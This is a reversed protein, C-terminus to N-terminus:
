KPVLHLDLEREAAVGEFQMTAIKIWMHPETEYMDIYKECKSQWFKPSSGDFSPFNLRPM